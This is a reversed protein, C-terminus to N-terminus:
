ARGVGAAAFAERVLRRVVPPLKYAPNSLASVERYRAALASGIAWVMAAMQADSDSYIQNRHGVESTEINGM